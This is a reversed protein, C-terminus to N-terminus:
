AAGQVQVALGRLMGPAESWRDDRLLNGSGRGCAVGSSTRPLSLLKISSDKLKQPERRSPSEEDEDEDEDEDEEIDSFEDEDPILEALSKEIAQAAAYSRWTEILSPPYQPHDLDPFEPKRLDGDPLTLRRSPVPVVTSGSHDNWEKVPGRM